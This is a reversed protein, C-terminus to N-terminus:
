DDMVGLGLTYFRKATELNCLLEGFERTQLNTFEPPNDGFQSLTLDLETGDDLRNWYHSGGEYEGRIIQGGLYQFVVMATVACQGWAPNEESWNEPDVSTEASWCQQLKMTLADRNM